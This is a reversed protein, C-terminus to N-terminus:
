SHKAFDILDAIQIEIKTNKGPEYPPIVDDLNYGEGRGPGRRHFGRGAKEKQESAKLDWLSRWKANEALKLLYHFVLLTAAEDICDAIDYRRFRISCTALM